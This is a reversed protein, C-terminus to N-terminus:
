KNKQCKQLIDQLFEVSEQFNYHKVQMAMDIPNFNIRCRFCRALNKKPNVATQFESCLPCLFRFYGDAIKSPIAFVDAILASIPINNRLQRLEEKSYKSAM